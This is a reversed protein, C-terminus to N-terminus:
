FSSFISLETEEEQAAFAIMELLDKNAPLDNYLTLVELGIM